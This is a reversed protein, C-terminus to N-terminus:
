GAMAAIWWTPGSPDTVGGRHDADDTKVPAQTSTVVTDDDVILYPAVSTYASPSFSSPM